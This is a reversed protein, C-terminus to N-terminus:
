SSCGGLSNSVGQLVVIVDQIAAVFANLGDLDVTSGLAPFQVNLNVPVPSFSALTGVISLVATIPQIANTLQGAQNMADQQACQLTAALDTNGASVAASIGPGLGELIALVSNIQSVFCKLAQIIFCLLDSLFVVIGFGTVVAICDKLNAFATLLDSMASLDPPLKTLGTIVKMLPGILALVKFLCETSALFPTLQM